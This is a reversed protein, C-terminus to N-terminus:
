RVTVPLSLRSAPSTSSSRVSRCNVRPARRSRAGREVRPQRELGAGRPDRAGRHVRIAHREHCGLQDRAHERRLERRRQRFRGAAPRRRGALQVLQYEIGARPTPIPYTSSRRADRARFQRAGPGPGSPDSAARQAAFCDSVSSNSGAIGAVTRGPPAPAGPTSPPPCARTMAPVATRKSLKETTSISRAQAGGAFPIRGGAPDRGQAQRPRRPLEITRQERGPAARSATRPRARARDCSASADDHLTGRIPAAVSAGQVPSTARCGSARPERSRLRPRVRSAPATASQSERTAARLEGQAGSTSSRARVPARSSQGREPVGRRCASSCPRMSEFSSCPTELRLTRSRSCPATASSASARPSCSQAPGLQPAHPARSRRWRPARPLVAAARSVRRCWGSSRAAPARGSM